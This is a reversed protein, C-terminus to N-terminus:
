GEWCKMCVGSVSRLDAKISLERCPAKRLKDRLQKSNHISIARKVNRFLFHEREKKLPVFRSDSVERSDAVFFWFCFGAFWFSLDAFWFGFDWSDSVLFRAFWFSFYLFWICSLGWSDSVWFWFSFIAFWVGLDAFWFGFLAVFWFGFFAFRFGCRGGGRFM